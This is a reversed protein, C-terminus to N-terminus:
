DLVTHGKWESQFPRKSSHAQSFSAEIDELLLGIRGKMIPQGKMTSQRMIANRKKRKEACRSKEAGNERRKKLIEEEREEWKKRRWAIAGGSRKHIKKNFGEGVRTGEKLDVGCGPRAGDTVSVSEQQGHQERQQEPAHLGEGGARKRISKHYKRRLAKARTQKVRLASKKALMTFIIDMGKENRWNPKPNPNANPNINRYINPALM